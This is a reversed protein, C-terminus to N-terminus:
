WSCHLMLDKLGALDGTELDLLEDKCYGSFISSFTLVLNTLEYTKTLVILWLTWYFGKLWQFGNRGFPFWKPAFHRKTLRHSWYRVYYIYFKYHLKYFSIHTDLPQAYIYICITIFHYLWLLAYLSAVPSVIWWGAKALYFLYRSFVRSYLVQLKNWIIGLSYPAVGRARVRVRVRGWEVFYLARGWLEMCMFSLWVCLWAILFEVVYSCSWM